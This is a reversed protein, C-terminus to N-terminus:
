LFVNIVAELINLLFSVPDIVIGIKQWITNKKEM